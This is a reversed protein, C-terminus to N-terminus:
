QGPSKSQTQEIFEKTTLWIHELSQLLQHDDDLVELRVTEPNNKGFELSEELPVTEDNKGHFVITPIMVRLGNTSFKQADLIFDYNLKTTINLGHHFVDITGQERWDELGQAGLMQTWRRPLGFGPALLVLAQLPILTQAVLTALLGGMSSGIIVLSTDADIAELCHGAVALQSSLTMKAFSPQNLDPVIVNVNIAALRDAFFKAKTSSPGSAFGHLYLVTISGPHM